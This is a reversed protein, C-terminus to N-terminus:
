LWKMLREKVQEPSISEICGCRASKRCKSCKIDKVLYSAKKGLPAWRMPFVPRMPSFLGLAFKESAAAIHLPGTSAALLGDAAAIFGILSELNLKGTLDVLAPFRENLFSRIRIIEEGAGTVFIKFKDQPLIEILRTFNDMGWERASGKSCPHIILNFKSKDILKGFQEPVPKIKTLGYFDPIENLRYLNKAGSSVILKLNLQAEHFDSNKRPLRILRNCTFWHYIRGSTGTRLPIRAKRAIRAVAKNPFVHLIIDAKLQALIKVAESEGCKEIEDWAEFRDVHECAEILAKTYTRGLFIIESDPHLKKLAGAVPLALAVDGIGDTRSIIIRKGQM